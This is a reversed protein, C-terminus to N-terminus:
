PNPNHTRTNPNPSGRAGAAAALMHVPVDEAGAVIRPAARAQNPTHQGHRYPYMAMWEQPTVACVKSARPTLTPELLQELHLSPELPPEWPPERPLERREPEATVDHAGVAERERYRQLAAKLRTNEELLERIKAVLASTTLQAAVADDLLDCLSANDGTEQGANM